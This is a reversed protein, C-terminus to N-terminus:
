DISTYYCCVQHKLDEVLQFNGELGVSDKFELISRAADVYKALEYYQEIQGIRRNILSATGSTILNIEKAICRKECLVKFCKDVEEFSMTGNMFREVFSDLEQKSPTWVLEEVDDVSLLGKNERKEEVRDLARNGNEKWFRRLFESDRLKSLSAMMVKAKPSLQFFSVVPYVKEKVFSSRVLDGVALRSVDMESRESLLGVDVSIFYFWFLDFM